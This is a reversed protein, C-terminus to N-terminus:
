FFNNQRFRNAADFDIGHSIAYKNFFDNGSM